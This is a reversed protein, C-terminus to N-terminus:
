PLKKLKFYFYLVFVLCIQHGKFYVLQLQVPVRPLTNNSKMLPRFFEFLNEIHLTEVRLLKSHDLIKFHKNCYRCIAIDNWFCSIKCNRQVSYLENFLFILASGATKPVAPQTLWLCGTYAQWRSGSYLNFIEVITLQPELYYFHYYIM